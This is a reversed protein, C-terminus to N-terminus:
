QSPLCQQQHPPHLSARRGRFSSVLVPPPPSTTVLRIKGVKTEHGHDIMTLAM